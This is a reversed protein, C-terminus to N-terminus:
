ARPWPCSRIWSAWGYRGSETSRAVVQGAIHLGIRDERIRVAAKATLRLYVRTWVGADLHVNERRGIEFYRGPRAGAFGAKLADEGTIVLRTDMTCDEACKVEEYFRGKLMDRMTQNLSVRDRVFGNPNDGAAALAPLVVAGIV